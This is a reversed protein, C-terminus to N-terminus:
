LDGINNLFEAIQSSHYVFIYEHFWGFFNDLALFAGQESVDHGAAKAVAIERNMAYPKAPHVLPGWDLDNIGM